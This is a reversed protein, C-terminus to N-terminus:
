RSRKTAIYPEESIAAEKQRRNSDFLYNLSHRNGVSAMICDRMCANLWPYKEKIQLILGVTKKQGIPKESVYVSGQRWEFGNSTMFRRIDEYGDRWSLKPYHKKMANTDLDFGVVKRSGGAM